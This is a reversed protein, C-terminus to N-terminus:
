GPISEGDQEDLQALPPTAAPDVKEMNVDGTTPKEGSYPHDRRLSGISGICSINSYSKDKEKLLQINLLLGAVEDGMRM